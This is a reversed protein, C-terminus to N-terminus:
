MKICSGPMGIPAYYLVLICMENDSSEGYVIPTDGENDHTCRTFMQDGQKLKLGLSSIPQADFNWNEQYLMEASATAGRSLDIRVGHKHMHGLVAFVDLDAGLVCSMENIAASTHAPIVLKRNDFGFIGAQMIDPTADVYDIRIATHGTIPADSANQLHLQLLVQQGRSFPKFAVQPPLELPGSDKGGAYLPVWTSKTLVPCESFGAPEPALVQAFLIHHTGVGYSPTLKTIAIDRDAPLTTTYCFYKEEGPQLTYADSAFDFRPADPTSTCGALALLSLLAIRM